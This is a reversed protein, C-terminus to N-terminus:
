ISILIFLFSKCNTTDLIYHWNILNYTSDNCHGNNNVFENILEKYVYNLNLKIIEVSNEM